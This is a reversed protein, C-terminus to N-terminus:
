AAITVRDHEDNGVSRLGLLAEVLIRSCWADLSGPRIESDHFLKPSPTVPPDALGLRLANEHQAFDEKNKKVQSGTRTSTALGKQKQIKQESRLFSGFDSTRCLVDTSDGQTADQLTPLAHCVRRADEGSYSPVRGPGGFRAVHIRRIVLVGEETEVEGTVEATLKGNSADIQRAKLAGGFTGM